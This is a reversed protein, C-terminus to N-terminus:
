KNTTSQLHGFGVSRDGSRFLDQGTTLTILAATPREGPRGPVPDLVWRDGRRVTLQRPPEDITYTYVAGRTEVVVQDGQQLTLLAAFPRGHTIRQGALAFNGVAGAAATGPYHGVGDALVSADTGELVPVEYGPGFRPVRLLAVPQGPTPAAAPTAPATRWEVRLATRERQYTRSAIADTGVYTYGAWGVGVLAIVLLLVGLVTGGTRRRAEPDTVAGNQGPSPSSGRVGSRRETGPDEAPM